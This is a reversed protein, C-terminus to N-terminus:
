SLALEKKDGGGGGGRGGGGGSSSRQVCAAAAVLALEAAYIAACVCLFAFPADRVTHQYLM